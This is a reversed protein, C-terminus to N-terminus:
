LRIYELKLSRDCGDYFQVFQAYARICLRSEHSELKKRSFFRVHGMLNKSAWPNQKSAHPLGLLHLRQVHGVDVGHNSAHLLLVKAHTERQKQV